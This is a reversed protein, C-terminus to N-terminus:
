HSSVMSLIAAVVIGLGVVIAIVTVGGDFASATVQRSPSDNMLDIQSAVNHHTESTQNIINITELDRNIQNVDDSM